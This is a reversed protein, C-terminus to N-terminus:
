QQCPQTNIYKYPYYPDTCPKKVQKASNFLYIGIKKITFSDRVSPAVYIVPQQMLDEHYWYPLETTYGYVTGNKGHWEMFPGENMHEVNLGYCTVSDGYVILGSKCGVLYYQCQHDCPSSWGGFKGHDAVWIHINDLIVQSSYIKLAAGNGLLVKVDLTNWGGVAIQIDHFVIFQDEGPRATSTPDGITILDFTTNSNLGASLVLQSVTANHVDPAITLVPQNTPGFINPMGLGLLVVDEKTVKLTQALFYNGPFFILSQGQDLAAQVKSNVTEPTVFCCAATSIFRTGPPTSCQAGVKNRELGPVVLWWGNSSVLFPVERICPTIDLDQPIKSTINNGILVLLQGIDQIAGITANRIVFQQQSGLIFTGTIISNHGASVGSAWDACNHAGPPCCSGVIFNGVIHLGRAPCQQSSAWSLTNPSPVGNGVQSPVIIKLNGMARRFTNDANGGCPGGGYPDSGGPSVGLTYVAGNIVTDEPTWGLGIAQM